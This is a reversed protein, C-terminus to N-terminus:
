MTSYFKKLKQKFVNKTNCSRIPQPLKSWCINSKVIFSDNMVKIHHKPINPTVSNRTNYNHTTIPFVSRLGLPLFNMKYDFYIKSLEYNCMSQVTPYSTVNCLVCCRQYIKEIIDIYNKSLHPYYVVIGYRIVSSIFAHFLLRKAHSNLLKCVSKITYLHYRLKCIVREAHEKFHLNNDFWFVSFNLNM